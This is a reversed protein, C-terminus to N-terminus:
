TITDGVHVRVTQPGFLNVSVGEEGGGVLLNWGLAQALAVQGSALLALVALVVLALVGLQLVIFRRTM